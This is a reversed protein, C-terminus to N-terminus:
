EEGRRQRVQGVTDRESGACRPLGSSAQRMEGRSPVSMDSQPFLGQRPHRRSVSELPLPVLRTGSCGRLRLWLTRHDALGEEVVERHMVKVNSGADRETAAQWGVCWPYGLM